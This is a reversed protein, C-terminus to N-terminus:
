SALSIRHDRRFSASAARRRAEHLEILGALVGYLFWPATGTLGSLTWLHANMTLFGAFVPIPWTEGRRTHGIVAPWGRCSLLLLLAVLVGAGFLGTEALVKVYSNHPTKRHFAEASRNRLPPPIELPVFSKTFEELGVGFVPSQQFLLLGKRNLLQRAQFPKDRDLTEFTAARQMVPDRWSAPAFLLGAVPLAAMPLVLAWPALRKRGPTWSWLFSMLLLGLAVAIWSSRSGNGIVAFLLALWGAAALLRRWGRTELVLWTAFPTFASFGLGFDNQSLWGPNGGGWRGFAFAGALRLLGLAVVGAALGTAASRGLGFRDILLATVVFVLMWYAFRLLMVAQEATVETMEGVFVNATLSFLHAMWFLAALLIWKRYPSWDLPRLLCGIALFCFVPASLSLRFLPVELAPVALYAAFLLLTRRIWKRAPRQEAQSAADPQFV